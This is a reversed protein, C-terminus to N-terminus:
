HGPHTLREYTVIDFGKAPTRGTEHWVAPDVDPFWTDGDPSDPVESLLIRDALPMAERYLQGGGVVFVEDGTALALAQELSAASSFGDVRWAPRRTVVVTVRGPLPSGISDYTRRGMVITHGMTTRKFHALDAPLHWPLGGGRGIVGNRAVAALLTVRM